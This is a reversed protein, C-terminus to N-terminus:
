RGSVYLRDMEQYMPAAVTGGTGGWIPEWRVHNWTLDGLSWRVDTYAATKVGDVWVHSEGDSATPSSNMRLILEVRYWQGPNVKVHGVNESLNRGGTPGQVHVRFVWDGSGTQLNLYMPDGGGGSSSDTIYLIKNVGVPHRQWNASVQFWLSVYLESSPALGCSGACGTRSPPWGGRFGAPYTMRGIGNAVTFSGGDQSTWWGGESVANFQRDTYATLGSPENSGFVPPPDPPTTTTDPPTVAGSVNVRVRYDHDVYVACDCAFAENAARELAEREAIHRSVRVSDVYVGYYGGGEATYSVEPPSQPAFTLAAVPVAVLAAALALKRM